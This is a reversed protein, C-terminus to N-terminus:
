GFQDTMEIVRLVEKHRYWGCFCWDETVKVKLLHCCLMM